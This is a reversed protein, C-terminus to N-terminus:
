GKKLGNAASELLSDMSKFAKSNAQIAKQTNIMEVMQEDMQVNSLELSNQRAEGRFEEQINVQGTNRIEELKEKSKFMKRTTTDKDFIEILNDISGYNDILEDYSRVTMYGNGEQKIFGLNDKSVTTMQIKDIYEGTEGNSITGDTSISVKVGEPITIKQGNTNMVMGGNAVSLVRNQDVQFAGNRTMYEKGDKQVIFFSTDGTGPTDELAVSYMSTDSVIAGTDYNTTIDDVFVEDDYRGIRERSDSDKRSLNSEEYVKFTAEESKFGNTSVNAMNNSIVSLKHNQAIMGTASIYIGTM